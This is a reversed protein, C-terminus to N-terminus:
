DRVLKPRGRKLKPGAVPMSELLAVRGFEATREFHANLLATATEADRAITAEMIERHDDKREPHAARSLHRYRDAADFLQECYGMVWSSRCASILTAHFVRHAAEWDPNVLTHDDSTHRPVRVMRHYSVLVDEEWKADGYIMSERLAKENLWCRARTLEELDTITMPSVSFGRLDVLQVLGDRTLRNLAERISSMALGYKACLDRIRLKSGAPLVSNIIDERLRQYAVSAQTQGAVDDVNMDIDGSM